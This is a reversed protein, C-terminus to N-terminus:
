KALLKRMNLVETVKAEMKTLEGQLWEQQAWKLQDLESPSLLHELCRMFFTESVGGISAGQATLAQLRETNLRTIEELPTEVPETAESM